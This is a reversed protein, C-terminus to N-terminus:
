KNKPYTIDGCRIVKYGVEATNSIVADKIIQLDEMSEDELAAKCDAETIVAYIETDSLTCGMFDSLLLTGRLARYIEDLLQKKDEEM